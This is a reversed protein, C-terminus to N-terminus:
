KLVSEKLGNDVPDAGLWIGLLAQKFAAGAIVDQLKNNKFVKVGEAPIYVLDFVDGKVIPERKFISVFKNIEAKIPETKGGTSKQFGETVAEVMRDSSVLKSTIAIRVAQSNGAKIIANADTSKAPLYLGLVYVDIFLKVRTGAGSLVLNDAGAKFSGPLIVGSIERQASALQATAAVLLMLIMKKM